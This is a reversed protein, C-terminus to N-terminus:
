HLMKSQEILGNSPGQPTTGIEPTKNLTQDMQRLTPTQCQSSEYRLPELFTDMIQPSAFGRAASQVDVDVIVDVKWCVM